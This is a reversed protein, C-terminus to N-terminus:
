PAYARELDIGMQQRLSLLASLYTFQSTIFIKESNYRTTQLNIVDTSAATGERYMKTALDLAVDAQKVAQVALDLQTQASRVNDLAGALTVRLTDRATQLAKEAQYKVEGWQKRKSISSLGSFLPVTLTIGATYYQSSSQWLDPVDPAQYGGTASFIANPMDTALDIGKNYDAQEITIKALMIMPNNKEGADLAQDLNLDGIPNVVVKYNTQVSTDKTEGLYRNLTAQSIKLTNNVQEVDVLSLSYNALAQLDDMRRARGIAAYHRTIAEYAKLIDRNSQAAKLVLESQVLNYYASMLNLLLTQKINFLNQKAQDVNSKYLGLGSTLGGGAYLPQSLTLGAQYTDGNYSTLSPVSATSYTSPNQHTQAMGVANITPFFASRAKDLNDEAQKVASDAQKVDPSYDEAKKIAENLSIPPISGYSLSSLFCSTIGLVLFRHLLAMFSM